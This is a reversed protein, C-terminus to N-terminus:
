PKAKYDFNVSDGQADTVTVVYGTKENGTVAACEVTSGVKSVVDDVCDVTEVAQGDAGLKQMLVEAVQEKPLLAYVSLEIGLKAPEVTSVEVVRKAPKGDITMECKTTAGVKGDVGSECTASPVSAMGAVAKEVQEKTMAPTIDFSVTSGEVKTATFVAEVNNTDSFSVDCGATKGVEGVLDDKCTVSKATMGAQTLRDTLDKQLQDATISAKSSVSVSATCGSLGAGLLGALAVAGCLAFNNKVLAL